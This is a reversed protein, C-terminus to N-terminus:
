EDNFHVEFYTDLKVTDTAASNHKRAIIRAFRAWTPPSGINVMHIAPQTDPTDASGSSDQAVSNGPSAGGVHTVPNLDYFSVGNNSVQVYVHVMASDESINYINQLSLTNAGGIFFVQRSTDALAAAGTFLRRTTDAAAGNRYTVQYTRLVIRDKPIGTEVHRPTAQGFGGAAYLLLSVLVLGLIVRFSKM